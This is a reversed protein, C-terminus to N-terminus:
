CCFCNNNAAKNGARELRCVEANSLLRYAEGTWGICLSLNDTNVALVIFFVFIKSPELKGHSTSDSFILGQV